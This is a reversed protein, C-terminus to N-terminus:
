RDPRLLSWALEVPHLAHRGTGDHIQHRCSTGPACIAAEAPLPRVAGFVSLEGIKMSLDYRHALYGFSGAMGCCGSPLITLREDGVLRRLLDTSTQEGWLAKQHCHGHFVVPPPGDAPAPPRMPHRDWRQEIFQEILFAKAALKRRLELPAAMRLALWDDKFSALCSPEAVLIAEVSEDEILPRLAELTRTATAIADDLLGMSIMARGCCGARPLLVGYGLHRLLAIAAHGIGPENYTTFCDGYLVVRPAGPPPPAIRATRYLSRAFRPLSRQPALGLLRGAMRRVPPLNALYDALGPAISGAQNLARVHGLLRSALPVRGAARYRQATFEAKLRAVDVNSPCESKCAKCSLCLDLTQMTEADDWRPRAGAGYGAPGGLVASRLANARGRTSHREDLTGRYSPCMVGGATKRCVGAGNCM